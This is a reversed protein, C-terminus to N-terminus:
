GPPEIQSASSLPGRDTTLCGCSHLAKDVLAKSPVDDGCIPINSGSQPINILARVVRHTDLKHALAEAGSRQPAPKARREVVDVIVAEAGSGVATVARDVEEAPLAFVLLDSRMAQRYPLESQAGVVAAARKARESATPDGFTVQHGGSRLLRGIAVARDNSGVIGIIMDGSTGM